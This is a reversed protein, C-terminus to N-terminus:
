ILKEKSGIYGTVSQSGPSAASGKCVQLLPIKRNTKALQELVVVSVSPPGAEAM